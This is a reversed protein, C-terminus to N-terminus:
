REGREVKKRIFVVEQKVTGDVRNEQGEGEPDMM